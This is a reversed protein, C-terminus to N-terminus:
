HSDVDRGEGVRKVYECCDEPGVSVRGDALRPQKSVAMMTSQDCAGEAPDFYHCNGCEFEGLKGAKEFGTGSEGQIDFVDLHSSVSGMMPQGLAAIGHLLSDM